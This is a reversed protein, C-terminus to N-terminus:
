TSFAGMQLQYVWDENLLYSNTTLLPSPVMPKQMFKNQFYRKILTSAGPLRNKLIKVVEFWEIFGSEQKFIQDLLSRSVKEDVSRYQDGALRIRLFDNVIQITDLYTLKLNHLEEKGQLFETQKLSILTMLEFKDFSKLQPATSADKILVEM